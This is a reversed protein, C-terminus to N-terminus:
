KQNSLIQNALIDCQYKHIMQRINLIFAQQQQPSQQSWSPCTEQLMQLAAIVFADEDSNASKADLSAQSPTSSLKDFVLVFFFVM